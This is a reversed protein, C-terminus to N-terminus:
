VTVAGRTPGNGKDQKGKVASINSAGPPLTLNKYKSKAKASSLTAAGEAAPSARREADAAGSSTRKRKDKKGKKASTRSADPPSALNKYKSKTKGALAPAAERGTKTSAARPEAPDVSAADGREGSQVTELEGGGGDEGGAGSRLHEPLRRPKKDILFVPKAWPEGPKGWGAPPADSSDDEAPLGLFKRTEQTLGRGRFEPDGARLHAPREGAPRKDKRINKQKSRTKKRLRREGAETGGGREGRSAGEIEGADEAPAASSKSRAKGWGRRQKKAEGPEVERSNRGGSDKHDQAGVSTHQEVVTVSTQSPMEADAAAAATGSADVDASPGASADDDAAAEKGEGAVGAEAPKNKKRRAKRKRGRHEGESDKKHGSTEGGDGRTAAAAAAAKAAAKAGDQIEMPEQEGAASAPSAAAAAAAAGAPVAPAADPEERGSRNKKKKKKFSATKSEACVDDDDDVVGHTDMEGAIADSLEQRQRKRLMKKEFASPEPREQQSKKPQAGVGLRRNPNSQRPDQREPEVDAAAGAAGSDGEDVVWDQVFSLSGADFVVDDVDDAPGAGNKAQSPAAHPAPVDGTNTTRM